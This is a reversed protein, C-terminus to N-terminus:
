YKSAATTRSQGAGFYDVKGEGCYGRNRLKYSQKWKKDAMLYVRRLVMEKAEAIAEKKGYFGVERKVQKIYDNEPIKIHVGTEFEIKKIPAWDHMNLYPLDVENITVADSIYGAPPAPSFSVFHFTPPEKDIQHKNHRQDFYEDGDAPEEVVPSGENVEVSLQDDISADEKSDEDDVIPETRTWNNLKGCHPLPTGRRVLTLLHFKVPGSAITSRGQSSPPSFHRFSSSYRRSVKLMQFLMLGHWMRIIGHFAQMVTCGGAIAHGYAFDERDPNYIPDDRNWDHCNVTNGSLLIAVNNIQVIRLRQHQFFRVITNMCTHKAFLIVDAKANYWTEIPECRPYNSDTNQGKSKTTFVVQQYYRMSESRAEQNAHMLSPPLCSIPALRYYYHESGKSEPEKAQFDWSVELLRHIECVLGWIKLRLEVPLDPFLHFSELPASPKKVEGEDEGMSLNEMQRSIDDRGERQAVQPRMGSCQNRSRSFRSGGAHAFSESYGNFASSTDIILGSGQTSASAHNPTSTMDSSASAGWIDLPVFKKGKGKSKKTSSSSSRHVAKSAFFIM